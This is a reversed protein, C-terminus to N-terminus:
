LHFALEAICPLLYYQSVLRGLSLFEAKMNLLTPIHAPILTISHKEALNLIHCALRFFLSVMGSQYCSYAKSTTNDLHLAVEKGSLHFALRYLMLVVAQLDQLAIHVKDLSSLWTRSLSLPLRSGQFYFLGIIPHLMLLSLWMLLLFHFPVPSQKLQSLRLLQSLALFFFSLSCFLHAASHYVHWTGCEPHYM